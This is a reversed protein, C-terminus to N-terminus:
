DLRLLRQLDPLTAGLGTVFLFGIALSFIGAIVGIVLYINRRAQASVFGFASFAAIASNSCVLGAVFAALMASGSFNTTAGAAGAILLAQSGTEAGVGHIMGVGFATRRTYQGEHVEHRAHLHPAAGTVHIKVRRWCRGVLAFVLMWRSRLQFDRGHRWLQYFIWFGLLLLTVGVIREMIPDVWGPLIASTWIALLGLAVVVVAHGLAYLTALFFRGWAEPDALRPGVISAPRAVLAMAAGAGPQMGVASVSESPATTATAPMAGTIDTIAAIHDWDIGHRLGLGFGSAMLGILGIDAMAADKTRSRAGRRATHIMGSTAILRMHWLM